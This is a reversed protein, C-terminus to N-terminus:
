NLHAQGRFRCIARMLVIFNLRCIHVRTHMPALNSLRYLPRAAPRCDLLRTRNGASEVPRERRLRDCCRQAEGAEHDNGPLRRGPFLPWLTFSVVVMQHWPCFITSSHKLRASALSSTAWPTQRRGSAQKRNRIGCPPM